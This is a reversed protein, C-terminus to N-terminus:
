MQCSWYKSPERTRGQGTRVRIVRDITRGDVIMSLPQIGHSESMGLVSICILLQRALSECDDAEIKNQNKAEIRSVAVAAGDNQETRATLALTAFVSNVRHSVAYM